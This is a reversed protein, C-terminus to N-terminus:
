PLLLLALIVITNILSSGHNGSVCTPINFLFGLCSSRFGCSAVSGPKKDEDGGGGQSRYVCSQLVQTVIPMM